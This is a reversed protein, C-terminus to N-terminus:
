ADKLRRCHSSRVRGVYILWVTLMPIANGLAIPEELEPLAAPRGTAHNDHMDVTVRDFRPRIEAPPELTAGGRHTPPLLM